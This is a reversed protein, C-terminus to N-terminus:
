CLIGTNKAFYVLIVFLTVADKKFLINVNLNLLYLAPTMDFHLGLLDEMVSHVKKWYSLVKKWYSLIIDCHWFCHMFTGKDKNCKFCLGTANTFMKKIRMPTLYIRNFFKFNLEHIGLSTCKPYVNECVVTWDNEEITWDNEEITQGIDKEWVEKLGLLSSTCNSSLIDYTRSISGKLSIPNLLIDEIETIDM